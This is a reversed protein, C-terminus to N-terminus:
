SGAGHGTHKAGTGGLEQLAVIPIEGSGDNFSGITEIDTRTSSQLAGADITHLSPMDGDICIAMPGNAHKALLCLLPDGLVSRNLRAALDYVPLLEKERRLMAKVFPTRSPVPICDVWPAIGGVDDTRAALREKGISFVLLNWSRKTVVAEVQQKSARLM